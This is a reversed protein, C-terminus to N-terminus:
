NKSERVDILALDVFRQLISIERQGSLRYGNIWAVPTADVGLRKVLEKHVSMASKASQSIPQEQASLVGTKKITEM